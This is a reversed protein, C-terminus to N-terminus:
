STNKMVEPLHSKSQVLQIMTQAYEDVRLLSTKPRLTDALNPQDIAQQMLNQLAPLNGMPFLLGNVGDQIFDTLGGVHSAIVPTKSEIADLLILPSNEHWTAPLVFFDTEAFANPLETLPLRGRLFIRNNGAAAANLQRVYEDHGDADGYLTLTAGQPHRLRNFAEILLHAGKYPQFRSIFLFRTYPASVRKINALPSDETVGFPLLAMQDTRFGNALFMDMAYRTPALVLDIKHRLPAILKLRQETVAVQNWYPQLRKWVPLYRQNRVGQFAWQVIQEESFKNLAVAAVRGLLHDSIYCAACSKVSEGEQCPKHDLRIFTSLRCIPTFDTAIHVVPIGLEVAAEVSALTVYHFNMIVLLDPTEDQLIRKVVQGVEPDYAYIYTQWPRQAPTFTLRWVPMQDYEDQSTKIAETAPEHTPNFAIITVSHGLRKLAQALRHTYVEVGGLFHPLYRHTLLVFKM